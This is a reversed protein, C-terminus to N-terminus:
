VDWGIHTSRGIGLKGGLRKKKKKKKLKWDRVGPLGKTSWFAGSGVGRGRKKKGGGGGGGRVGTTLSGGSVM